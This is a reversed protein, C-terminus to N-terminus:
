FLYELSIMLSMQESWVKDPTTPKEGKAATIAPFGALVLLMALLCVLRHM